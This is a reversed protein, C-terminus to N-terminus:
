LIRGSPGIIAAHEWLLRRRPAVLVGDPVDLRRNYSSCGALVLSTGAPLLGPKEVVKGLSIVAIEINLCKPSV